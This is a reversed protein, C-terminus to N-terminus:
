LGYHHYGKARASNIMVYCKASEKRKRVRGLVKNPSKVCSLADFYDMLMKHQSSHLALRPSVHDLPAFHELSISGIHLELGNHVQRPHLFFHCCSCMRSEIQLLLVNRQVRQNYCVHFFIMKIPASQPFLFFRFHFVHKLNVTCNQKMRKGEWQVMMVDGSCMLACEDWSHFTLM